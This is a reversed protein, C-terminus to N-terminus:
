NSSLTISSHSTMSIIAIGFTMKKSHNPRASALASHAGVLHHHYTLM